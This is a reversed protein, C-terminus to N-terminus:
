DASQTETFNRHTLLRVPSFLRPTVSLFGDVTLDNVAIRVMDLEICGSIPVM